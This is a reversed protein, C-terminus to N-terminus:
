LIFRGLKGKAKEVMEENIGINQELINNKFM